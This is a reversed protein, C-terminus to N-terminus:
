RLQTWTVRNVQVNNPLQIPTTTGPSQGPVPNILQGILVTTNAKTSVVTLAGNENTQLGVMSTDTSNLFGSTKNTSGTQTFTGGSVVSIVYTNGTNTTVSCSLTANTAPITSNVILGQQFLSPSSVIQEYSGTGSSGPLNAYWGFKGSNCTITTGTTCQAWTVTNNTSDVTGAVSGTSFTQRLLNSYGLTYPSSLSTAAAVQAATMSAYISASNANWTGFNWDWVGYLSQTATSYTTPASTTLQTRQGTGFSVIISPVTGSVQASAVVLPTTIPQGTQTKFLPVNATGVGWGTSTTCGTTTSPTVPSCATLNFRWVNGQLDGAYVYDTIHDGDLDAATVYAIGNATSTTGTSFYYFTKAGTSQDVTMVYIGADGSSSGFGNGFIVGWMGNHLRRILPTGNTNGLRTGCNTVNSCSITASSWDGIVVGSANGENFSTTTPDTIDLAYLGSGGAGLGGVLWTHWAGGYFLDGVGPTADVYFNHGYQSNAFDLAATSSNHITNLVTGPMYALIEAGDNPTTTDDILNGASDERGSRFAHLFGDNAGVYVVNLRGLNNTMFTAYPTTASNEPTADGTGSTYGAGLAYRDKLPLAYPSNPAGVWVPSSDVIDGLIGDRSRFLGVGSTNIENTSDGRLYNLRKGNPNGSSTGDGADIIGQETTTIGSSGPWEFRIGATGPSATTDVGNWTLIVRSGASGTAWPQGNTPTAVGTTPCTTTSLNSVGTLVCQSDWNALSNISVAGATTIALGYATMRGTWNDPNYYAFYAQSSTEVKNTLQQDTTASSSSTDVPAAKFCLLEHINTSGGTSGAFGFRLTAPLAGNSASISQNRLVSVTAAGNQSYNLSLLGDQTIKLDYMFVNGTTVGDPRALASENAILVSGTGTYPLEVYGGPIPAYDKVQTYSRSTLNSNSVTSPSTTYGNSYDLVAGATCTAQVASIKQAATLAHSSTDPPYYYPYARTLAVWSVNGAGRLGIRNAKFGYGYKSNDSSATNSGTYTSVNQDGNLFNGYEDIGLGIYAGALGDANTNGNSCSYGLSGGTAGIGNYPATGPTLSGDMLFFSIGDAGEVNGGNGRYSVAKFTIHVGQGADFTDKSVISGHEFFGNIYGSTTNSSGNTLRLAGSGVPDLRGTTTGGTATGASGGVLKTDAASQNLQQVSYYSNWVTGCSAVFNPQTLSTNSGATLCAGDSFYWQNTTSAGTFDETYTTQARISGAFALTCLILAQIRASNHTNMM